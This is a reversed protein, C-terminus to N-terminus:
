GEPFRTYSAPRSPPPTKPKMLSSLSRIVFEMLFAIWLLEMVILMSFCFWTLPPWFFADTKAPKLALVVTLVGISLLFIGADRVRTHWDNAWLYISAGWVAISVLCFGAIYRSVWVFIIDALSELSM